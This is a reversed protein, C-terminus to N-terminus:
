SGSSQYHNVGYKWVVLSISFLIIGVVPTGMELAPHLLDDGSRDLFLHAPYFNIFAIPFVFTLFFQVGTNYISVPYVIFERSSFVATHVLSRNRLTWFAVASVMLRIAGAILVGGIVVVPFLAIKKLTWEIGSIHTSFWLAAFGMVLHAVTSIEFRSFIVQGLPSLPRVLVRDFGGSIIMEDFQILQSFILNTFGHAMALLTYLFAMEGLSWGQIEHFQNLVVLLLAIQGIYFILIAFIYFLFSTKYEMRARLSTIIIALYIGITEM